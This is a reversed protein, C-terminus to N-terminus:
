IHILSLILPIRGGARVEDLFTESKLSFKTILKGKENKIEGKAPFISVIDGMNLNEVDAEFVLTGSDEMTNFFIPAVKEGICIGGTKKKPIFPIDEGILWLVSNTASKRSSGTGMVEGVLTVPLGKEKLAEIEKM